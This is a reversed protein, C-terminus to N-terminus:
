MTRARAYRGTIESVHIRFLTTRHPTPDNSTLVNPEFKRLLELGHEYADGPKLDASLAYFAGKVVVSTWDFLGRVEDVEFACWQRHALSSLKSGGSTRGYLWEGDAVYHIPEIDVQEHFAYAIRGVTHQALM